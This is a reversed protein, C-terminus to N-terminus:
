IRGITSFIGRVQTTSGPVAGFSLFQKPTGASYSAESLKGPTGSVMAFYGYYQSNTTTGVAADLDAIMTDGSNSILIDCSIQGVTLNNNATVVSNVQLYSNGSSPGNKFNLITGFIALTQNTGNTVVAQPNSADIIVADGVKLTQSNSILVNKIIYNDLLQKEPKIM